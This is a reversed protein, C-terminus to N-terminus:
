QPARGTQGSAVLNVCASSASASRPFPMITSYRVWERLPQFMRVHLFQMGFKTKRCLLVQWTYCSSM